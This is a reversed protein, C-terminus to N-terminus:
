CFIRKKNITVYVIDTVPVDLKVNITFNNGYIIDGVSVTLSSPLIDTSNIYNHNDITTVGPTVANDYNSLILIQFNM